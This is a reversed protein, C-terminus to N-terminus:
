QRTPKREARYIAFRDGVKKHFFLEKGDLSISPAEVFGTLATLVRPEGFPEKVSARTAVMIRLRAGAADLGSMLQSARSFYLELGNASISPAYQLSSSNINKMISASDPDIRFAGDKLRAVILKSKKPAPAGPVFVARSIYLTQGDPSISVDMNIEGATKPSIDGPVPHVNTVLGGNVDGTYISNMTRSYDRLTTFYFHGDRDVSPAAELAESNVNYVEGIYHFSLKGTRAAVRLNTNVGPYNENNFFLFQGDASIFPEMANGNYGDISVPEPNVFLDSGPETGADVPLTSKDGSETHDSQPHDSLLKLANDLLGEAKHPDGADLAPKVQEMISIIDSPDRGQGAWSRVGAEAKAAKDRLRHQIGLRTLRFGAFLIIAALVPIALILLWRKM